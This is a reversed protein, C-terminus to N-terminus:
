LVLCVWVWVLWLCVCVCVCVVVSYYWIQTPLATVTETVTAIETVTLDQLSSEEHEIFCWDSCITSGSVSDSDRDGDRDSDSDFGSTLVRWTWHFVSNSCAISDSGRDSDNDRDSHLGSTLVRWTWHVLVQLAAAKLRSAAGKPTSTPHLPAHSPSERNTHM